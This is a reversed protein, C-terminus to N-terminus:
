AEPQIASPSWMTSTFPTDPELCSMIRRKFSARSPPSSRSSWTRDREEQNVDPLRPLSCKFQIRVKTQRPLTWTSCYPVRARLALQSSSPMSPIFVHCLSLSFLIFVGLRASHAATTMLPLGGPTSRCDCPNTCANSLIQDRNKSFTRYHSEKKFHLTTTERKAAEDQVQHRPRRRTTETQREAFLREAFLRERSAVGRSADRGARM